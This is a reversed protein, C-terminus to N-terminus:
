AKPKNNIHCWHFIYLDCCQYVKAKIIALLWYNNTISLSLSINRYLSNNVQSHDTAYQPQCTPALMSATTHGRSLFHFGTVDCGATFAEVLSFDTQLLVWVILLWNVDVIMSLRYIIWCKIVSPSVWDSMTPCTRKGLRGEVAIFFELEFTIYIVFYVLLFPMDYIM